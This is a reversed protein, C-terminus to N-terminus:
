TETRDLINCVRSYLAQQGENMTGVSLIQEGTTKAAHFYEVSLEVDGVNSFLDALSAYCSFLIRKTIISIGGNACSLTEGGAVILELISTGDLLCDVIQRTKNKDPANDKSLTEALYADVRALQLAANFWYRNALANVVYASRDEADAVNLEAKAPVLEQRLWGDWLFNLDSRARLLLDVGQKQRESNDLSAYVWGATTYVEARDFPNIRDEPLKNVVEIAKTAFKEANILDDAQHALKARLRFAIAVSSTAGAEGRAYLDIIRNAVELKM